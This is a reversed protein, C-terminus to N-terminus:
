DSMFTYTKVGGGESAERLVENEKVLLHLHAIWKM